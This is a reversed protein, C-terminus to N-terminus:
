GAVEEPREREGVSTAVDANRGNLDAHTDKQFGPFRM